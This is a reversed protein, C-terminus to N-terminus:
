QRRLMDKRYNLYKHNRFKSFLPKFIMRYVGLKHRLFFCRSSVNPIEADIKQESFLTSMSSGNMGDEVNEVSTLDSVSLGAFLMKDDEIGGGDDPGCGSAEMVSTGETPIPTLTIDKPTRPLLSALSAPGQRVGPSQQKFFRQLSTADNQGISDITLFCM